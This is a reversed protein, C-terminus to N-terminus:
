WKVNFRKLFKEMQGRNEMVTAYLMKYHDNRKFEMVVSARSVGILGELALWELMLVVLHLYSTGEKGDGQPVAIPLNPFIRKLEPFMKRARGRHREMLLWHAQEHLYASLARDDNDLFRLNLTLVPASHNIAQEDIVIDRTITYKELDYQAALREMQEKRKQELQSGHALTIELKPTRALVLGPLLLIAILLHRM